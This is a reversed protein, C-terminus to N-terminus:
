DEQEASSSCTSASEIGQQSEQFVHEFWAKAEGDLFSFLSRIDDEKVKKVRQKSVNEPELVLDFAPTDECKWYSFKQFDNPQYTKSASVSGSPSFFLQCSKQLEFKVRKLKPKKHFLPKLVTVWDKLLSTDWVTHFFTPNKRSESIIRLYEVATQIIPKKKLIRGYIGFNRDCQSYSHGRVPFIHTVEVQFVKSFWACYSMVAFNKNQGGAADSFMIVRKFPQRQMLDTLTKHVLSIVSNPNKKGETELFAFMNSEGNSNHIHVNFLYIWLLRKYFQGTCNLKPVPLNQAYDFEIIRTEPDAKYKELLEKKLKNYAAVKEKHLNLEAGRASNPDQKLIIEYESCFDCVDVRPRRFSFDCHQRFFKQYTKYSLKLPTKEKEEYFELFSEYLSKITLNPNQFYKLNTRKLKYHSQKHPISELHQRVLTWVKAPIKHKKEHKGREDTLPAGIIVKKQVTRLRNQTISLVNIFFTQCVSRKQGDVLFNYHWIHSRRKLRVCSITKLTMKQLCTSLFADQIQKEGFTWFKNFIALQENVPVQVHCKNKCCNEVCTFIKAPVRSGRRNTYCKGRNRNTKRCEDKTPKHNAKKLRGM